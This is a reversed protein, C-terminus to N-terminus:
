LKIEKKIWECERTIVLELNNPYTKLLDLSEETGLFEPNGYHCMFRMPITGLGKLVGKDTCTFYYTSFLCAGASSGAVIKGKILDIFEPYRQIDKVLEDTEGGTIYIAKASKLQEILNDYTANVIKIDKNTQALIYERDRKYINLRKEEDRRAFGIFLVEDGDDLSKTIESCFSKNRPDDLKLRGGHLIFTTKM